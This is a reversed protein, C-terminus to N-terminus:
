PYFTGFFGTLDTVEGHEVLKPTVYTLKPEKFPRKEETQAEEQPRNTENVQM